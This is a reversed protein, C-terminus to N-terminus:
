RDQAGTNGWHASKFGERYAMAMLGDLERKTGIPGIRLVRLVDRVIYGSEEAYNAYEKRRLRWDIDTM